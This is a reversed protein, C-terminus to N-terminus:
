SQLGPSRRVRIDEDLGQVRVLLGELRGYRPAPQVSQPLPVVARGVPGCAQVNLALGSDAQVVSAPQGHGGHGFSVGGGTHAKTRFCASSYQLGLCGGNALLKLNGVLAAGVM